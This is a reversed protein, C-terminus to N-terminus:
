KQSVEVVIRAQNGAGSTGTLTYAGIQDGASLPRRPAPRPPLSFETM